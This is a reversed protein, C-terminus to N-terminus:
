DPPMGQMQPPMQQGQGSAQQLASAIGQQTQEAVSSQPEAQGQAIALERDAAEIMNLADKYVLNRQAEPPLGRGETDDDVVEIAAEVRPDQMQQQMQQQQQQMQQQMQQQQQQQMQQQMQPGGQMSLSELGNM